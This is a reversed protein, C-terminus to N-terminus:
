KVKFVLIFAAFVIVQIGCSTHFGFNAFKINSWSNRQYSFWLFYFLRIWLMKCSHSGTRWTSYGHSRAFIGQIKTHDAGSFWLRPCTGEIERERKDSESSCEFIKLVIIQPTCMTEHRLQSLFHTYLDKTELSYFLTYYLRKVPSFYELYAVCRTSWTASHIDARKLQTWLTVKLKRM